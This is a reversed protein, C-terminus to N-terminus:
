GAATKRRSTRSRDMEALRDAIDELARIGKSRSGGDFASVGEREAAALARDAPIEAWYPIKLKELETQILQREKQTRVKNAIGLIEIGKRKDSLRKMRRVTFISKWSPDLVALLTTKGEGAWGLYAQRPGAALDSVVWWGRDEFEKIVRLFVIASAQQERTMRGSMNGFQLFRIGEPGKRSFHEVAEQATIVVEWGKKERFVAGTSLPWEDRPELGLSYALGPVADADLALVREGRRALIRCLNGALTSKGSGGKGIFAVRM